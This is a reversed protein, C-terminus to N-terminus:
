MAEMMRSHKAEMMQSFSEIREEHQSLEADAAFQSRLLNLWGGALEGREKNRILHVIKLKRDEVEQEIDTYNDRKFIPTMAVGLERCVLALTMQELCCNITTRNMHIDVAHDFWSDIAKRNQERGILLWFQRVYEDAVRQDEISLVAVNGPSPLDNMDIGAWSTDSLDFRDIMFQIGSEYISTVSGPGELNSVVVPHREPEGILKQAAIFDIDIHRVPRQDYAAVKAAAFLAPHVGDMREPTLKDVRDYPCGLMDILWEAGRDDAVLRASGEIRRLLVCSVIACRAFAEWSCFGAIPYPGLSPVSWFTHTWMTM